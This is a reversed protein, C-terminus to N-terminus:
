AEAMSTYEGTNKTYELYEVIGVYEGVNTPAGGYAVGLWVNVGTGTHSQGTFSGQDGTATLDAASVIETGGETTGLTGTASVADDSATVVFVSADLIIAQPPLNGVHYDADTGAPLQDQATGEKVHYAAVCIGKKQAHTGFRVLSTM